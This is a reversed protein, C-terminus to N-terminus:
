SPKSFGEILLDLTNMISRAGGGAIYLDAANLYIVQGNKWATTEAVLANDLTEDARAGEAGIAVSRDIVLLWDPNADRIFEFSVAEGHSNESSTEVAEPLDLAQHLWGFRSGKGYASVKPGNTMVILASGKGAVAERAKALKEDLEASLASAKDARDFLKGYAAIRAKAQGLLDDGWVTMDITPAFKALPELQEASRSGVVILDPQMANIAEFDPEFLSGVVEAKEHADKLHDLYAKDVTGAVSVGLANLTDFASLDFVAIKEPSAPVEAPGRATEITVTDALAPAAFLVAAAAIQVLSRM